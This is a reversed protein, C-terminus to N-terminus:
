KQSDKEAQSGDQIKSANASAAAPGQTADARLPPPISGNVMADELRMFAEREMKQTAQLKALLETELKELEDGEMQYNQIANSLRNAESNVGARAYDRKKKLFENQKQYGDYQSKKIQNKRMEAAMAQEQRQQYLNQKINDKQRRVEMVAQKKQRFYQDNRIRVEDNAVKSRALVKQLDREKEMQVRQKERQKKIVLEDNQRQLNQLEETKKRTENIKKIARQEEQQLM